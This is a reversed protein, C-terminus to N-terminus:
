PTLKKWDVGLFTLNGFNDYVPKFGVARMEDDRQEPENKLSSLLSTMRDTFRQEQADLLREVDARTFVETAPLAAPAAPAPAAAPPETPAEAKRSTIQHRQTNFRNGGIVLEAGTTLAHMRLADATMTKM